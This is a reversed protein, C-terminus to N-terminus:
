LFFGKVGLHCLFLINQNLRQLSCCKVAIHNYEFHSLNEEEYEVHFAFTLLTSM